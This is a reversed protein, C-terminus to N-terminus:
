IISGLVYKWTETESGNSLLKYAGFRVCRIEVNIKKYKLYKQEYIYYVKLKFQNKIVLIKISLNQSLTFFKLNTFIDRYKNGLMNYYHIKM